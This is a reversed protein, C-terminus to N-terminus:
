GALLEFEIAERLGKTFGIQYRHLPELIWGKGTAAAAIQEQLLNIDRQLQDCALRLQASMSNSVGEIAIIESRLRHAKEQKQEILEILKNQFQSTISQKGQELMERTRFKSGAHRGYGFFNEQFFAALEPANLLGRFRIPAPPQQPATDTGTPLAPIEREPVPLAIVNTPTQDDPTQQEPAATQATGDASKAATPEPTAHFGFWARKLTSLMNM